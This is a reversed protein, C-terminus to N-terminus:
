PTSRHRLQISVTIWSKHQHNYQTCCYSCLSRGSHMDVPQSPASIFYHVRRLTDNANTAHGNIALVLRFSDLFLGSKLQEAKVNHHSANTISYWWKIRTIESVLYNTAHPHCLSLLSPPITRLVTGVATSSDARTSIAELLQTKCWYYPSRRPANRKIFTAM